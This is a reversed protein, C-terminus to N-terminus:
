FRKLQEKEARFRNPIRTSPQPSLPPTKYNLASLQPNRISPPPKLAVYGPGKSCLNSHEKGPLRVDVKGSAAAKRGM